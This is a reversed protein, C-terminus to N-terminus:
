ELSVYTPGPQDQWDLVRHEGTAFDAVILARSAPAPVLALEDIPDFAIGLPLGSAQADIQEILQGTDVDFLQLSTTLGAYVALLIENPSRGPAASYAIGAVSVTDLVAPASPDAVDILSYGPPGLSNVAVARDMGDDLFLVWSPDASVHLPASLTTSPKATEFVRISGTGAINIIGLSGDASLDLQEPGAGVEIEEIISFNALDIISSSTGSQGNGGYNATYATSGDPSIAIGMPYQATGLEALIAASEVEVILLGGGVPLEETLGVLGAVDGAFFGPSSAILAM